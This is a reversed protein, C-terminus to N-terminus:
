LSVEKGNKLIRIKRRILEPFFLSPKLAEEPSLVGRREISGAALLQAAISCSSGTDLVGAPTIGDSKTIADMIVEQEGRIIVRILEEDHIVTGKWPTLQNMIAATIDLIEIEKSSKSYGKNEGEKLTMRLSNQFIKSPKEFSEIHEFHMKNHSALGLEVLINITNKLSPPFTARFECNKIGKCELFSPLTAIESHLTLFGQQKGFEKGFNYTKGESHPQVFAIKGRHLIAPQMTYEDILTKFSYPLVFKQKYRTEDKTVFVIEIDSVKQLFSSGYGALVNSIGPAAGAGLIATKNILSFANDRQLQQLTIHFMGGLDVYNTHAALCANMIENNLYYQMCNICVTSDRLLGILQQINYVDVGASMVRKDSFSAAFASAKSYDRGAIIITAHKLSAFLDRVVVKGVIGYGGLVVFRM